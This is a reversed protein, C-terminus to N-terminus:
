RKKKFLVAKVGTEEGRRIKGINPIHKYFGILTLLISIILEFGTYDFYWLLFPLVAYLLFSGIAIYDTVLSVIVQILVIIIGVRWDFALFMGLLSAIGKGGRFQLYFPYIHGLVAFTGALFAAAPEAPYLWRILWVALMAKFFDVLFTVLGWKWGMVITANSAGANTSGHERIDIKRVLRGIIFSAQICGLLYGAIISVLITTTNM